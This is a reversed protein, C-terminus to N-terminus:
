RTSLSHAVLPDPATGAPYAQQVGRRHRMSPRRQHQHNQGGVEVQVSTGQGAQFPPLVEEEQRRGEVEAAV